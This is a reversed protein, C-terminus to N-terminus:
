ERRDIHTGAPRPSVIEGGAKRPYNCGNPLEYGIHAWPNNLLTKMFKRRVDAWYENPRIM